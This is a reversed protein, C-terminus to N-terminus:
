RIQQWDTGDSVIEISTGAALTTQTTNTLNKFTSITINSATKNVITYIRSHFNAAVPLSIDGTATTYIWIGATDDPQDTGSELGSRVKIAMTGNVELASVAHDTKVGLNNSSFIKGNIKLTRNGFDGDILPEDSNNHIKLKNSGTSYAGVQNGIFVNGSGEVAEGTGSGLYFNQNGTSAFGAYNGIATNESGNNNQHLAFKGIATNASGTNSAMASEGIALNSDGHENQNGANNGIYVNSFGDINSAGASEGIYVNIRDNLNDNIGANEGIFISKGTNAFILKGGDLIQNGLLHLNQLPSDIGIGVKGDPKVIFKTTYDEAVSFQQKVQLTDSLTAKLPTLLISQSFSKQNLFCLFLLLTASKKM